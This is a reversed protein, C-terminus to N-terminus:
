FSGEEPLQPYEDFVETTVAGGAYRILYFRERQGSESVEFTIAAVEVGDCSIRAM